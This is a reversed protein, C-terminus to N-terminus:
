KAHEKLEHALEGIEEGLDVVAYSAYAHTGPNIDCDDLKGVLAGIAVIKGVRAHIADIIDFLSRKPTVNEAAM